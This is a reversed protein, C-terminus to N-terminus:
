KVSRMNNEKRKLENYTENWRREKKLNEGIVIGRKKGEERGVGKVM